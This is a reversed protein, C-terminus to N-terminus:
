KADSSGTTGPQPAQDEASRAKAATAGEAWFRARKAEREKLFNIKKGSLDLAMRLGEVLYSDRVQPSESAADAIGVQVGLGSWTVRYVAYADEASLNGRYREVRVGDLRRLAAVGEPTLLKAAFYLYPYSDKSM